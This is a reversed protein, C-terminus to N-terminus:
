GLLAAGLEIPSLNQDQELWELFTAADTFAGHSRGFLLGYRMRTARYTPDSDLVRMVADGINRTTIRKPETWKDRVSEDFFLQNAAFLEEVVDSVLDTVESRPLKNVAAKEISEALRKRSFGVVRGDRKMVMLYAADLEESTMFRHGCDKCQRTRRVLDRTQLVTHKPSHCAPCRM